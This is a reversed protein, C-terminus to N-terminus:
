VVFLIPDWRQLEPPPCRLLRAHRCQHVRGLIGKLRRGTVDLLDSSSSATFGRDRPLTIPLTIKGVLVPYAVLSTLNQSPARPPPPDAKSALKSTPPKSCYMVQQKPQAKTPPHTPPHSLTPPHAPPCVHEISWPTPDTYIKRQDSASQATSPIICAFPFTANLQPLIVSHDEGVAKTCTGVLVPVPCSLHLMFRPSVWDFPGLVWTESVDRHTERYTQTDLGSRPRYLASVIGFFNMDRYTEIHRNM